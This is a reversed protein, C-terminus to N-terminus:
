RTRVDMAAKEEQKDKNKRKKGEIERVIKNENLVEV